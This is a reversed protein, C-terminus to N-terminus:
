GWQSKSAGSRANGTLKSGSRWRLNMVSFARASYPNAARPQNHRLMHHARHLFKRRALALNHLDAPTRNAHEIDVAFKIRQTIAAWVLAARQTFALHAAKQHRGRRTFIRIYAAALNQAAGPVPPFEVDLRALRPEVRLLR